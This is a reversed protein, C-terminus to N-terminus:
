SQRKTWEDVFEWDAILGKRILLTLLTAFLAEWREDPLIDSVDAGQARALLAGVLDSATLSQNGEDEETAENEKTPAPLRVQTGDLLTLTIMRPKESPPASPEKALSAEPPPPETRQARRPPASKPKAGFYYVRVANRIDAPPAVMPRVPMGTLEELQALVDDSTPDVMAVFLTNGARRVSRVYVPIVGHQDALEAPILNLLERSFEIRNLSVWPLSFQNSLVQTLQVEDLIGTAVLEEGLKRGSKGQAELASEVQQETVLGAKVLMDGLRPRNEM